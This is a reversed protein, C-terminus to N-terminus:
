KSPPKAQCIIALDNNALMCLIDFIKPKYTENIQEGLENSLLEFVQSYNMNENAELLQLIRLSLNDTELVELQDNRNRYVLLHTPIAPSIKPLYDKDILHVPYAYTLGVVLPSAQWLSSENPTTDAPESFSVDAIDVALQIWEFHMLEIIFTHGTSRSKQANVFYALFEQCIELFYPTQSPHIKIFDRILTEWADEPLISKTIPYVDAICQNINKYVLDRYIEQQRPMINDTTERNAAGRLYETFALQTQQFTKM